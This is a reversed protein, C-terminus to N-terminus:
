LSFMLTSYIYAANRLGSFPVAQRISRTSLLSPATSARLLVPQLSRDSVSIAAIQGSTRLRTIHFCSSGNEPATKETVLHRVSRTKARGACALVRSLRKRPSILKGTQRCGPCFYYSIKQASINFNKDFHTLINRHRFGCFFPPFISFSSIMTRSKPPCYM